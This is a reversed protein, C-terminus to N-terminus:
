KASILKIGYMRRYYEFHDFIYPYLEYFFGSQHHCEIGYTPFVEESLIENLFIAEYQPFQYQCFVKKLREMSNNYIPAFVELIEGDVQSRRRLVYGDPVVESKSFAGIQYFYRSYDWEFSLAFRYDLVKAASPSIEIAVEDFYGFDQKLVEWQEHNAPASFLDLSRRELKGIRFFEKVSLTIKKM